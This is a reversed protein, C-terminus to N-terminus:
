KGGVLSANGPKSSDSSHGGIRIPMMTYPNTVLPLSEVLPKPPALLTADSNPQNPYFPATGIHPNPLTPYPAVSAAPSIGTTSSVQVNAPAPRPNGGLAVKAKAFVGSFM